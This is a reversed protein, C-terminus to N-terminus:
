VETESLKKLAAFVGHASLTEVDLVNEAESIEWLRHADSDVLRPM